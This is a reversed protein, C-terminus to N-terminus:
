ESQFSSDKVGPALAADVWSQGSILSATKSRHERNIVRTSASRTMTRTRM